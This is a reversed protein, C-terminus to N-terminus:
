SAVLRALLFGLLIGSLSLIVSAFIYVFALVLRGEFFLTVADLSFTSFTTFGGCFGTQWFLVTSNHTIKRELTLEFIFGIIIAGLINILLTLLPFQIPVSIKGLYFRLISGCMGGLGVMLYTKSM